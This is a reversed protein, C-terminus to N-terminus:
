MPRKCLDSLDFSIFRKDSNILNKLLDFKRRTQNSSELFKSSNIQEELISITTPFFRGEFRKEDPDLKLNIISEVIRLAEEIFGIKSM